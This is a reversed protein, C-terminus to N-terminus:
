EGTIIGHFIRNDYFSYKISKHSPTNTDTFSRIAVGGRFTSLTTDVYGSVDVVEMFPLRPNKTPNVIGLKRSENDHVAIPYINNDTSTIIIVPKWKNLVNKMNEIPIYASIRSLSANEDSLNILVENNGIKIFENNLKNIFSFWMTNNSSIPVFHDQIPYPTITLISQDYDIDLQGVHSSDSTTLIFSNENQIIEDVIGVVENFAFPLVVRTVSTVRHLVDLAKLMTFRSDTIQVKPMVTGRQM